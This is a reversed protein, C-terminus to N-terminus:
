CSISRTGAPALCLCVKLIQEWVRPWCLLPCVPTVVVTAYVCVSQMGIELYRQLLTCESAAGPCYEAPSPQQM